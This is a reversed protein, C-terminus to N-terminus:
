QMAHFQPCRRGCSLAASFAALFAFHSTATALNSRSDRSTANMAPRIACRTGNMTQASPRLTSGNM